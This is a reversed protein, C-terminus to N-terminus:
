VKESSLLITILLPMDQNLVYNLCVSHTNPGKTASVCALPCLTNAPM